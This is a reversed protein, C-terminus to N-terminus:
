LSLLLNMADTPPHGSYYKSIYVFVDQSEPLLTKIKEAWQRVDNTRNRETEGLTGKVKRRDGELRIYIFDGALTEIRPMFPHDVLALAVNDKRLLAYLEDGLLKKNRVEVVYRHNQPLNAIFNSLTQVHEPKFAYPLQILLPGLKNELKSLRKIFIDVTEGCNKLLKLHTIVRPFKVSFLFNDPTQDRWNTVTSEYPIRYFTSDVEVTDFHKSYESLYQDPSTGLPYLNGVWFDYSWGMTGVHIKTM